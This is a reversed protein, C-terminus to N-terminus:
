AASGDEQDLSEDDGLRVTGEDQSALGAAEAAEESGARRAIELQAFMRLAEGLDQISRRQTAYDEGIQVPDTGPSRGVEEHRRVQGVLEAIQSDLSSAREELRTRHRRAHRLRVAYPQTVLYGDVFAFIGTALYLGSMLIALLWEVGRDEAAFVTEAALWRVVLLILGFVAWACVVAIVGWPQRRVSVSGDQQTDDFHAKAVGSTFMAATSVVVVASAILNPGSLGFPSSLPMLMLMLTRILVFDAVSAILLLILVVAWPLWAPGMSAYERLGCTRSGGSNPEESEKKPDHIDKM